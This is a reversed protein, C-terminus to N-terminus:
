NLDERWKPHPFHLRHDCSDSVISKNLRIIGIKQWQKKGDLMKSAVYINFILENGQKIKLENRFDKENVKKSDNAEIMMWRPSITKTNEGLEAIEYVQRIGAKKDANSFSHSVKLAYFINKFAEYTFSAPPANTLSVDTYHSADTGGLDDILFFNASPKNMQKNPDLTAFLKGAFGFSRTSGSKTNSMATSARAIILAKSGKKFYGSYINESDIEWTGKFCIGNPHALKDFPELIDDRNNLTRRADDSIKDKGDSYLKFFSIENQPLKSYPDSKVQNWVENFSTKYEKTPENKKVKNACGLFTLMFVITLLLKM